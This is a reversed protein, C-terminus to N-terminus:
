TRLTDEPVHRCNTSSTLILLMKPNEVKVLYHLLMDCTLHFDKHAYMSFKRVEKSGEEWAYDVCFVLKFVVPLHDWFGTADM